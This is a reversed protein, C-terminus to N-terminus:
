RRQLIGIVECHYTNPFMDVLDVSQVQYMDSMKLIDRAFTSPNCSIYAIKDPANKIVQNVAVSTLGRRPPNLIMFGFHRDIKASEFSKSIYKVNKIKNMKINRLADAKAYHNEEIILIDSAIKSLPVAFNGAGGYVDIVDTDPAVEAMVREILRQNLGWNTQYFSNPSITYRYSKGQARRGEFICYEGGKVMGKDTSVGDFGIDIFQQVTTESIKDGLLYAIQNIGSLIHIEKIGKPISKSLIAKIINNIPEVALICNDIPVVDRSGERYFGLQGDTSFKLQVKTRYGWQNNTLPTPITIDLKGIRSLCDELVVRKIELQQDYSIHQYHCGGCVDFVPCLPETRHPSSDLIEVVEAISYDKKREKIKALVTEGTIAGKIFVVGASQSLCMGGYVPAQVKLEILDM